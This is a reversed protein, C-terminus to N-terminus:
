LLSAHQKASEHLLQDLKALYKILIDVDNFVTFISAM